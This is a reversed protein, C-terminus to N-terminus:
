SAEQVASAREPTATALSEVCARTREAARRLLAPAAAFSFRIFGDGGAGFDTGPLAAVGFDHLLRSTLERLTIDARALTPRVDTFAYFAGEPLPTTIEGALDLAAIFDDRRERFETRYEAICRQSGTLAALGALQVFHPACSTNNIVLTTVHRAVDRPMLGFGLRFGTM